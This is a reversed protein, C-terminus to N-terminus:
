NLNDIFDLTDSGNGPTGSYENFPDYWTYVDNKNDQTKVEWILGTVCDQVMAWKNENLSIEQRNENLKKYSSPHINYSADQGWFPRSKEPTPIEKINDYFEKQGTDAIRGYLGDQWVEIKKSHNSIDNSKVTIWGRRAPGPNNNFKVQIFGDNIGSQGSLFKLWDDNTEAEWKMYGSATVSNTIRISFSGSTEPICVFEPAVSLVTLDYIKYIYAAGTSNEDGPAGAIVYNTEMSVPSGLFDYAAGDGSTIKLAQSWVTNNNEYVFISGSSEGNDDDKPAGIVAYNNSISVWQGFNDAEEGNQPFIKQRYKWKNNQYDFIYASGSDLGKESDKFAGSIITNKPLILLADLITMHCAM